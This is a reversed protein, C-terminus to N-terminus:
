ELAAIRTGRANSHKQARNIHTWKEDHRKKAERSAHHKSPLDTDKKGVLLVSADGERNVNITIQFPIFKPKPVIAASKSKSKPKPKTKKAGVIKASAQHRTEPVSPVDACDPVEMEGENTEEGEDNTEEGEDNTEEGEGEDESPEEDEDNTEEGEGEHQLHLHLDQYCGGFPAIQCGGGFPAIKPTVDGCDSSCDSSCDDSCDDGDNTPPVWRQQWRQEWFKGMEIEDETAQYPNQM